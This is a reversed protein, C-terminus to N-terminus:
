PSPLPVGPPKASGPYGHREQGVTAWSPASPCSGGPHAQTQADALDTITGTPQKSGALAEPRVSPKTGEPGPPVRVVAQAM